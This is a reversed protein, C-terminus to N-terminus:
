KTYSTLLLVELYIWSLAILSIGLFFRAWARRPEPNLHRWSDALTLLGLTGMGVLIAAFPTRDFVVIEEDEVLVKNASVYLYGVGGSLMFVALLLVLTDLGRM